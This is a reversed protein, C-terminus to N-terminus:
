LLCNMFSVEYECTKIRVTNNNNNNNNNNNIFPRSVNVVSFKDSIVLNDRM